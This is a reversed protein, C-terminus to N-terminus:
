RPTISRTCFRLMDIPWSADVISSLERNEDLYRLAAERFAIRPREGRTRELRIRETATALSREAEEQSVPGLRCFITTGLVQKNVIRHNDSDVTIGSTRTRAMRAQRRERRM